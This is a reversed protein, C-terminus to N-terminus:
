DQAFPESFRCKTIQSGIHFHIGKLDVHKLSTLKDLVEDLEWTNIKFANMKM